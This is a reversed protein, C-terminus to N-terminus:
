LRKKLKIPKKSNYDELQIIQYKEQFYTDEITDIKIINYRPKSKSDKGEKLPTATMDPKIGCTFFKNGIIYYHTPSEYNISKNANLYNSTSGPYLIYQTDDAFIWIYQMDTNQYEVTYLGNFNETPSFSNPETNNCGIILITFVLMGFCYNAFLFKGKM